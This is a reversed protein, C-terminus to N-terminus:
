AEASEGNTKPKMGEVLAAAVPRAPEMRAKRAEEYRAEVKAIEENESAHLADRLHKWGAEMMDFLAEGVTQKWAELAVGASKYLRGDVEWAKVPVPPAVLKRDPPIVRKSTKEKPEVKPAVVDPNPMGKDEVEEPTLGYEALSAENVKTPSPEALGEVAKKQAKARKKAKIQEAGEVVDQRQRKCRAWERANDGRRQFQEAKERLEARHYLLFEEGKHLIRKTKLKGKNAWRSLVPQSICFEMSAENQRVYKQRDYLPM